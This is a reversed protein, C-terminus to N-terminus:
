PQVGGVALALAPQQGLRSYCAYAAEIFLQAEEIRRPVAAVEPAQM